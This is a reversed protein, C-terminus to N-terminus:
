PSERLLRAFSMHANAMELRLRVANEIEPRAEAEVVTGPDEYLFENYIEEAVRLHERARDRHPVWREEPFFDASMTTDMWPYPNVSM